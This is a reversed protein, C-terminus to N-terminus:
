IHLWIISFEYYNWHHPKNTMMLTSISPEFQHNSSCKLENSAFSMMIRPVCECVHGLTEADCRQFNTIKMKIPNANAIWMCVPRQDNAMKTIYKTKRNVIRWVGKTQAMAKEEMHWCYSKFLSIKHYKQNEITQRHTHTHINANRVPQARFGLKYTSYIKMKTCQKRQFSSIDKNHAKAIQPKRYQNQGYTNVKRMGGTGEVGKEDYWKVGKGCDFACMCLVQSCM